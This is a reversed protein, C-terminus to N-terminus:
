KARVPSTVVGSPIFCFSILITEVTLQRERPHKERVNIMLTLSVLHVTRRTEESSAKLHPLNSVRSILPLFVFLPVRPPSATNLRCLKNWNAPKEFSFMWSTKARPYCHVLASVLLETQSASVSGSMSTSNIISDTHLHSSICDDCHRGSASLASLLATLPLVSLSAEICVCSEATTTLLRPRPIYHRIQQASQSSSDSQWVETIRKEKVDKRNNSGM